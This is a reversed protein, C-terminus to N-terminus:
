STYSELYNFVEMMSSFWIGDMLRAREKEPFDTIPIHTYLYITKRDKLFVLLFGDEAVLYYEEAVTVAEHSVKEQNAAIRDEVVTESQLETAPVGEAEERNYNRTIMYGATLCAASVAVFLLLCIIYKKM